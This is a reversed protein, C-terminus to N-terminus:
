DNVILEVIEDKVEMHKIKGYALGNVWVVEFKEAVRFGDADMAELRLGKVEDVDM